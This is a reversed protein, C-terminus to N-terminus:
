AASDLYGTETLALREAQSLTLGSALVQSPGWGPEATRAEAVVTVGRTDEWLRVRRRGDAALYEKLFEEPLRVSVIRPRFPACVLLYLSAGLGIAGIIAYGIMLADRMWQRGFGALLRDGAWVIVISTGLGIAAIVLFGAASRLCERRTMREADVRPGYSSFFLRALWTGPSSAALISLGFSAALVLLIPLASM